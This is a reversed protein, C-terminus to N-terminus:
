QALCNSNTVKYWPFTVGNDLQFGRAFLFSRGGRAKYVIPWQCSECRWGLAVHLMCCSAMLRVRIITLNAKQTPAKWATMRTCIFSSVADLWTPSTLLCCLYFIFTTIERGLERLWPTIRFWALKSSSTVKIIVTISRECAICETWPDHTLGAYNNSSFRPLFVHIDISFLVLYLCM